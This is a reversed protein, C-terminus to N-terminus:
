LEKLKARLEHILWEADDRTLAFGMSKPPKGVSVMIARRGHKGFRESPLNDRVEVAIGGWGEHKM